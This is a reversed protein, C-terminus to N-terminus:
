AMEATALLRCIEDVHQHDTGCCGGVISLRPLAERLADYQLALSVPDGADLDLSADLEAHSSMSANARIGRIRSLWNGREELM